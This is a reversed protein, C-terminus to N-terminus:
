WIIGFNQCLMQDGSCINNIMDCLSVLIDVIHTERNQVCKHRFNRIDSGRRNYPSEYYHWTKDIRGCNDHPRFLIARGCLASRMPWPLLSNYGLRINLDASVVCNSWLKPPFINTRDINQRTVFSLQIEFIVPLQSPIHWFYMGDIGLNRMSILDTDFLCHVIPQWRPIFEGYEVGTCTIHIDDYNSRRLDTWTCRVCHRHKLM